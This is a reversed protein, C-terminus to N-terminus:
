RELSPCQLVVRKSRQQQVMCLERELREGEVVYEGARGRWWMSV